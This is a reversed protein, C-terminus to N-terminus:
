WHIIKTTYSANTDAVKIFYIGRPTNSINMIVKGNICPEKRLLRGNVDLLQIISTPNNAKMQITLVDSVPNVIVHYDQEETNGIGSPTVASVHVTDCSICMYSVNNFFTQVCVPVSYGSASYTTPTYYLMSMGGMLPASQNGVSDTWTVITFGMFDPVPNNLAIMIEGPQTEQWNFSSYCIIANTNATDSMCNSCGSSDQICLTIIICGYNSFLDNSSILVTDGTLSTDIPIIQGSVSGSITWSYTFPPIGSTPTGTLQLDFNPMLSDSVTVSCQARANEVALVLFLVIFLSYIKNKM